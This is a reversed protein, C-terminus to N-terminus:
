SCFSMIFVNPAKFGLRKASYDDDQELGDFFIKDKLWDARRFNKANAAPPSFYAPNWGAAPNANMQNTMNARRVREQERVPLSKWEAETINHDGYTAWTADVIDGLTVGRKSQSAKVTTVWPSIKSIIHVTDVRPITAPEDQVLFPLDKDSHANDYGGTAGNSLNFVLHFSKLSHQLIPNLELSKCGQAAQLLYLETATLVPGYAAGVAFKPVASM